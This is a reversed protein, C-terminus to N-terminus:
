EGKYILKKMYDVTYSVGWDGLAGKWTGSHPEISLGRDYGKNYLIGMFAGWDTMDLGAPPDDVHKGATNITGKIHVHYFRDGWEAAEALYNGSGSNICHSTDYKLGLDKLYGHTLKWVEPTRVFNNWDCNYTAVDVGHEKGYAVMKGLYTVANTVNEYFSLGEVYNVGTNFVTCGLKECADVLLMNNKLEEDILKGDGDFKDTGWRGMAGIGVGYKKTREILAPLDNTFKVCDNGVNYCIELFELGLDAAAKFGADDTPYIIGLKMAM